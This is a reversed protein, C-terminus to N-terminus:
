PTHTLTVENVYADVVDHKRDSNVVGDLQVLASFMGNDNVNGGTASNPHFNVQTTNGDFTLTQFTVTGDNNRLFSWKIHHWGTFSPNSSGSWPQAFQSRNCPVVPPMQGNQSKGNLFIWGGTSTNFVAWYGMGSNMNFACETYFKSWIGNISAQADVEFAQHATPDPLYVYEDLTWHSDTSATSTTTPSQGKFLVNAPSSNQIELMHLSQGNLSTNGQNPIVGGLTVAQLLTKVPVAGNNGQIGPGCPNAIWANKIPPYCNDQSNDIGEQDLNCQVTPSTSCNEAVTYSTNSQGLISGDNALAQVILTHAGSPLIYVGNVTNAPVDGLKYGNDWVALRTVGNQNGSATIRVEHISTSGATPNTISVSNSTTANAVTYAVFSADLVAGYNSVALVTTFHSGAGLPYSGNLTSSFVNGLKNGNDWVELHFAVSENAYATLTVPGVTGAGSAPSTITVSAFSSPILFALPALGLLATRVCLRSSFRM